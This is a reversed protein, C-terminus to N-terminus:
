YNFNHRPSDFIQHVTRIPIWIYCTDPQTILCVGTIHCEQHRTQETLNALFRCFNVQGHYFIAYKNM